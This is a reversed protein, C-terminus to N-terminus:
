AKYRPYFSYEKRIPKLSDIIWTQKIETYSFVGCVIAGNGRYVLTGSLESCKTEAACLHLLRASSTELHGESHDLIM